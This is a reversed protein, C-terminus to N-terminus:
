LDRVCVVNRVKIKILRVHMLLNSDVRKFEAALIDKKSKIITDINNTDNAVSINVKM